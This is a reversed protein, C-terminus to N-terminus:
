DLAYKYNIKDESFTTTVSLEGIRTFTKTQEHARKLAERPHRVGFAIELGSVGTLFGCVLYHFNQGNPQIDIHSPVLLTGRERVEQTEDTGLLEKVFNIHEIERPVAYILPQACLDVLISLRGPIKRDGYTRRLEETLRDYTKM